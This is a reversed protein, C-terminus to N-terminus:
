REPQMKNQTYIVAAEPSALYELLARALDPQASHAAIVGVYIAPAALEAPVSGVASIGSQSMESLYTLGIEAKGNAVMEMAADGSSVLRIKPKIESTMGPKCFKTSFRDQRPVM